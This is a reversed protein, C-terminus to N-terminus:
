RTAVRDKKKNGGAWNTLKIEDVLRSTDDEPYCHGLPHGKSDYAYALHHPPVVLVSNDHFACVWVPGASTKDGFRELSELLHQTHHQMDHRDLKCDSCNLSEEVRRNVVIAMQQAMCESM